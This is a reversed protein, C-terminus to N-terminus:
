TCSTRAFAKPPLPTFRLSTHGTVVVVMVLVVLLVVTVSVCVLERVVVEIVVVVREVVESVDVVVKVWVVVEVDVSVVTMAPIKESVKGFSRTGVRGENHPPLLATLVVLARVELSHTQGECWRCMMLAM